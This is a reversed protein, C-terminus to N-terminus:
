SMPTDLAVAAAIVSERTAGPAVAVALVREVMEHMTEIQTPHGLVTLAGPMHAPTPWPRAICATFPDFEGWDYAPAGSRLEALQAFFTARDRITTETLGPLPDPPLLEAVEADDLQAALAKGGALAWLPFETGLTRMVVRRTDGTARALAFGRGGALQYAEADLGTAGALAHVLMRATRVVGAQVSDQGLTASRPGLVFLGDSRAIWGEKECGSLLRSVWSKDLGTARALESVSAPELAAVSELLALGKILSRSM